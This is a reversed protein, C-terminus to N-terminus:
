EEEGEWKEVLGDYDADKVSAWSDLQDIMEAGLDGNLWMVAPVEEPKVGLIEAIKEEQDVTELGVCLNLEIGNPLTILPNSGCMGGQLHGIHTAYRFTKSLNERRKEEDPEADIELAVKVEYEVLQKMLPQGEYRDTNIM